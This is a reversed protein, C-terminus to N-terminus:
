YIAGTGNSHLNYLSTPLQSLDKPLTYMEPVAPPLGNITAFYNSGAAAYYLRGDPSIVAGAYSNPTQVANSLTVNIKSPIAVSAYTRTYPDFERIRASSIALPTNFTIEQIYIKGNTGLIGSGFFETGSTIIRESPKGGFSYNGYYSLIPEITETEPDIVIAVSAGYPHCYIKGDYALTASYYMQTTNGVNNYKSLATIDYRLYYFTDTNPDIVMIRSESFPICYIKGNPALITGAWKSGGSTFSGISYTFRSVPDIVQIVTGNFPPCYIKGNQALVGGIFANNGTTGYVTPYSSFTETVFDFELIRTGFAPVGIATNNQTKIFKRTSSTGTPYSFGILFRTLTNTTPDIKACEIPAGRYPFAYILNNPGVIMGGYRGNNFGIPSLIPWDMYVNNGGMGYGMPENPITKVSPIIMGRGGSSPYGFMMQQNLNQVSPNM